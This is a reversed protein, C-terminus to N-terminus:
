EEEGSTFWSVTNAAESAPFLPLWSSFNAMILWILPSGFLLLASLKMWSSSLSKGDHCSFFNLGAWPSPGKGALSKVSTSKRSVELGPRNPSTGPHPYGVPTPRKRMRAMMHTKEMFQTRLDLLNSTLCLM